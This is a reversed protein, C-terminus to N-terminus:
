ILIMIFILSLVGILSSFLINFYTNDLVYIILPIVIPLICLTRFVIKSASTLAKFESEIKSRILINKKISDFIISINGGTENLLSLSTAIYKIEYIDIRSSFRKFSEEVSLGHNIDNKLIIFEKKIEDEQTEIVM